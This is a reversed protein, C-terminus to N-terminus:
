DSKILDLIELTYQLINITGCHTMQLRSSSLIDDHNNNKKDRNVTHSCVLNEVSNFVNFSSLSNKCKKWFFSLFPKLRSFLFIRNKFQRGCVRFLYIEIKKLSEFGDKLTWNINVLFFFNQVFSYSIIILNPFNPLNSKDRPVDVM